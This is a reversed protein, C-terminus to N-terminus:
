WGNRVNRKFTKIFDNNFEKLQKKLDKVNKFTFEKELIDDYGRHYPADSAEVTFMLRVTDDSTVMFRCLFQITNADGRRHKASFSAGDGQSWFGSWQFKIDYFGLKKLKETYDEVLCESWFDDNVNIDYLKELVKNQKSKDLESFKAVTYVQTVQRM